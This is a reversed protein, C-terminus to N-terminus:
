PITGHIDSFLAIPVGDDTVRYRRAHPRRPILGPLRLRLLDCTVPWGFILPVRDPRGHDLNDRSIEEFFRRGTRPVDLVRNMSFVAQLISLVHRYGAACVEPQRPLRALWTRFKGDIRASDLSGGLPQPRNPHECSLVGNDLPGPAIGEKTLACWVWRHGSICVKVEHPM